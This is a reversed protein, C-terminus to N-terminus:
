VGDCEDNHWQLAFPEEHSTEIHPLVFLPFSLDILGVSQGNPDMITIPEPPWQFGKLVNLGLCFPQWNGPLM